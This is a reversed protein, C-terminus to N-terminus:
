FFTAKNKYFSQLRWLTLYVDYGAWSLINKNNLKLSLVTKIKLSGGEREREGEREGKKCDVIPM